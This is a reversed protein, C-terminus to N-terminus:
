TEKILRAENLKEIKSLMAESIYLEKTESERIKISTEDDPLTDDIYVITPKMQWRQNQDATMVTLVSQDTQGKDVGVWRGLVENRFIRENSVDKMPVGIKEVEQRVILDLVKKNIPNGLVLLVKEGKFLAQILLHRINDRLSNRKRIM